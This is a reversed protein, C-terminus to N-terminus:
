RTSNYYNLLIALHLVVLIAIKHKKGSMRKFRFLISYYIGLGFPLGFLIVDSTFSLGFSSMSLKIAEKLTFSYVYVMM